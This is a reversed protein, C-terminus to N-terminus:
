GPEEVDPAPAPVPAGAAAVPLTEVLEVLFRDVVGDGVRVPAGRHPQTHDRLAGAEGLLVAIEARAGASPEELAPVAALLARGLLGTATLWPEAEAAFRPDVGGRVVAPVAVLREALRHLRSQAVTIDGARWAARVADLEAAHRPAQGRHLYGDRTNLDAFAALAALVDPHGGAQEALSRRWSARADFATDDWGYEAFSNLAVRSLTPQVMPNALVGEVHASLGDQRGCWDGLHLRGAEYDNVPFNDWVLVPHGFVAVASAAEARTITAPIVDTGTWWVPVEPDLHARLARKYPTDALDHYETPVFQVPACDGHGRAWAQVQDVLWAQAAGAGEAFREADGEAHWLRPDIDDFAVAFARCGLDYVAQFKAILAALDAPDTFRVSLGPSVTFVLRVHNTRARAVLEGLGALEAAPYPERWRERHYVDDKPAYVYTNMRHEGLHDLHALRDPHSWPTGYFGEISGRYPMAPADEVVVGPIPEGGRAIRRLVQAGYFVGAGDAGALVVAGPEVVLRYSEPPGDYPEGLRIVLDAPEEGLDPVGREALWALVVREAAPDTRPGPVLAVATGPGCPVTAGSVVLSAPPPSLALPLDVPV